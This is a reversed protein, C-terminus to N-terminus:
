DDSEEIGSYPAAKLVAVASPSRLSDVEGSAVKRLLGIAVGFRFRNMLGYKRRYKSEFTNLVQTEQHTFELDDKVRCLIQWTLSCARVAEAFAIVDDVRLRVAHMGTGVRQVRRDQLFARVKPDDFTTIHGAARQRLLCPALALHLADRDWLAGQRYEEITASVKAEEEETLDEDYGVRKFISRFRGNRWMQRALEIIEDDSAPMLRAQYEAMKKEYENRDTDDM